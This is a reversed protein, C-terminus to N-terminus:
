RPGKVARNLELANLPTAFGAAPVGAVPRVHLHSEVLSATEAEVLIQGPAAHQCLRAAKNVAAGIYDDGEFMIVPGECIGGRLPLLSTAAVEDRVAVSCEMVAATDLSSLMAGDGLWKAVRVGYEECRARLIARLSAVVAVAAADGYREQYATSGCLDLFSFCRDVRM